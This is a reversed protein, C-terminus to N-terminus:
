ECWINFASTTFCASVLSEFDRSLFTMDTWTRDDAGFYKTGYNLQNFCWGTVSSIRTWDENSDGNINKSKLIPCPVAHPPWREQLSSILRTWNEHAGGISYTINKIFVESLTRVSYSHHYQTATVNSPLYSRWSPSFSLGPWNQSTAPWFIDSHPEIQCSLFNTIKLNCTRIRDPAM